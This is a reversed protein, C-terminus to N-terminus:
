GDKGSSIVSGDNLGLNCGFCCGAVKKGIKDDNATADEGSHDCHECTFWNIRVSVTGNTCSFTPFDLSLWSTLTVIKKREKEGEDQKNKNKQTKSCVSVTKIHLSLTIFMLSYVFLNIVSYVFLNIVSYYFLNIVSYVFLNIVSYVFLNIVSYVFLNIVSYYFM